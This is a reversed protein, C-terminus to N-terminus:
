WVMPFTALRDTYQARLAHLEDRVYLKRKKLSTLEVDDFHGSTEMKDIQRDLIKHEKILKKYHNEIGNNM